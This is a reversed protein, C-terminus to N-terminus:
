KPHKYTIFRWIYSVALIINLMPILATLEVGYKWKTYYDFEDKYIISKKPSALYATYGPQWVRRCLGLISCICLAVSYVSLCIAFDLKM